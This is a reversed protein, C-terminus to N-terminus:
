PPQITAGMQLVGPGTKLNRALIYIRWYSTECRIESQSVAYGGALWFTM